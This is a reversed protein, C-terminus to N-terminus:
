KEIIKVDPLRDKHRTIISTYWTPRLGMMRDKIIEQLQYPHINNLSSSKTKTM